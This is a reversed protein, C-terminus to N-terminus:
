EIYEKIRDTGLNNIMERVEFTCCIFCRFLRTFAISSDKPQLHWNPNYIVSTLTMSLTSESYE